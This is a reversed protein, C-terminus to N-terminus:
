RKETRKRRVSRQTNGATQSSVHSYFSQSKSPPQPMVVDIRPPKALSKELSAYDAVQWFADARAQLSSMPEDFVGSKNMSQM